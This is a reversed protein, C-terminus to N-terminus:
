MLIAISDKGYSNKQLIFKEVFLAVMLKRMFIYSSFNGNIATHKELFVKEKWIISNKGFVSYCYFHFLFDNELYFM